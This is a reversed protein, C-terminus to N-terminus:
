QGDGDLIALELIPGLRLKVPPHCDFESTGLVEVGDVFTPNRDSLRRVTLRGDAWSIEAHWRSVNDWPGLAARVQLDNSLRGLTIPGTIPLRVGGPLLLEPHRPGAPAGSSRCPQIPEACFPCTGDELPVVARGACIASPCSVTEADPLGPDPAPDPPVDM